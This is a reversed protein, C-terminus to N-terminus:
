RKSRMADAMLGGIGGCIILVMGVLTWVDPVEGFLVVGWFIAFVMYCYDFAAVVEPRPSQYAKALGISTGVMLIALVSLMGWDGTDTPQWPALLVPFDSNPTVLGSTLVAMAVLGIILFTVNLWFGLVVPPVDNSRARTMIAAVAYCLAAGVPMLVLPSFTAAFPRVIVLLGAFGTLIALWHYSTVRNGLVIAALGVIFLPATYFAAGALALNLFPLAPYMFLYMAILIMSRLATWGMGPVTVRGRAIAFLVPIVIVSRLVWIQWLSMDASVLKIIADALAMGFVSAIIAPVGQPIRSMGTAVISTSNMALQNEEVKLTARMQAPYTFCSLRSNETVGIAFDLM